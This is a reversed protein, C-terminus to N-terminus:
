LAEYERGYLVLERNLSTLGEGRLADGDVELIGYGEEPEVLTTTILKGEPDLVLIDALANLKLEELLTDINTGILLAGVLEDDTNWVPSSTFIFRGMQTDLVGAFKDGIQDQQQSIVNQVPEFSSYDDGTYFETTRAEPDYVLTIIASGQTDMAAIVDINNNVAIGEFTAQLGERSRNEVATSVGEMYTLLRLDELHKREKRVVGDATVRSAEVLQNSFREEFSGAVLSTIIFVGVMAVILTLLAYPVILKTRLNSFVPIRSTLRRFSKKMREFLHKPTRKRLRAKIDMIM